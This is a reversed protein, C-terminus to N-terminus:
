AHGCMGNALAAAPASTVLRSGIVASEAKGGLAAVYQLAKRGPELRSGSVMAAVTDVLHIKARESVEAPLKSKGASAIYATLTRTAPSIRSRSAAVEAGTVQLDNPKPGPPPSSSPTRHS